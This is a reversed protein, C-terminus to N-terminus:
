VAKDEPTPDQLLAPHISKAAALKPERIVPILLEYADILYLSALRNAEFSVHVELSDRPSQNM